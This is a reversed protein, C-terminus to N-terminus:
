VGLVIFFFDHKYLNNIFYLFSKIAHSNIPIFAFPVFVQALLM